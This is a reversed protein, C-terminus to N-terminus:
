VKAVDLISDGKLDSSDKDLVGRLKFLFKFCSMERKFRPASAVLNTHAASLSINEVQREFTIRYLLKTM